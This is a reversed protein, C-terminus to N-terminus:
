AGRFDLAAVLLRTREAQIAVRDARITAVEAPYHDLGVPFPPQPQYEMLLQIKQATSDGVFLGALTLAFDLGATVGGGTIRNRDRVVREAVPIAGCLPLLELSLWHTTARYGDLLGAAGLVLAGTCVSTVWQAESGIRALWDLWARDALLAGIGPGGPVCVVDLADVEDRAV